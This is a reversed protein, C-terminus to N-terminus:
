VRRWCRTQYVCNKCSYSSKVCDRDPPKDELRACRIDEAISLVKKAIVPDRIGVIEYTDNTDKCEVWFIYRQTNWLDLYGHMQLLYQEGIDNSKLLPWFYKGRMGKVDVIYEAGGTGILVDLSGGIHTKPDRKFEEMALVEFNGLLQHMKEFTKEWRFHRYTGDEFIAKSTPEFGGERKAGIYSYYLARKCGGLGSPSITGKSGHEDAPLKLYYENVLPTLVRRPTTIGQRADAQTQQANKKMDRLLKELAV